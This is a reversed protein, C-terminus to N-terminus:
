IHAGQDTYSNWEIHEDNEVLDIKITRSNLVISFIMIFLIKIMPLRKKM